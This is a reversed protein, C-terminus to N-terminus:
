LSRTHQRELAWATYRRVRRDPDNQLDELIQRGARTSLRDIARTVLVRVESDPDRAAVVIGRFAARTGIISLTGAAQRRVAPDRHTLRRITAEVFGLEELVATVEPRLSAIDQQLLEVMAREGAVGMMRFVRALKTRVRPEADKIQEVLMEVQRTSAKTALATIIPEDWRDDAALMSVLLAISRPVQSLGLGEIASLKVSQVENEDALMSRIRQLVSPTGHAGLVAAADRRVREVPDRLLDYAQNLSRSDNYLQLARVAAIRVDPDADSVAERIPKLYERNETAPLSLILAARVAADPGSLIQLARENFAKGAFSVLERVFARSEEPELATLNELLFQLCFPLKLKGIVRVASMRVVHSHHVSGARVIRLLTPLVAATSMGALAAEVSERAATQPDQLMELLEPALVAEARPAIRELILTCRDARHKWQQLQRRVLEFSDEAGRLRVTDLATRYMELHVAQDGPLALIRQAVPYVARASGVSGLLRAALLLSGENELNVADLFGAVGVECAARLLREAREFDERDGLNVRRLMRTLAGSEQLHTAAPLRLELNKHGLYRFAVNEDESSDPHLLEIAHYAEIESLDAANVRFRDAFDSSIRTRAQRRVEFVPDHLYLDHLAAYLADRDASSFEAAVTRRVQHHADAFCTWLMRESREDADHLIVKAAFYRVPWEPDGVMERVEDLRHSLLRRAAAGDFQEGRGSLAVRRLPLFDYSRDIWAQLMAAIKPSQLASVFCSFMGQGPAFEMVRAADRAGHWRALREIWLQDIGTLQVIRHDRQRAVKEILRSRLLLTERRYHRRIRTEALEPAALVAELNRRFAARLVGHWVVAAALAVGGAAVIMQVAGPHAQVYYVLQQM